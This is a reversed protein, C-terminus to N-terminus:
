QGEVCVDVMRCDPIYQMGLARAFDFAMRNRMLSKDYMNALLCWKKGKGMGLVDQKSSLKVNYPRKAGLATTNGRVKITAGEDLLTENEGSPDVIEITATVYGQPKTLTVGSVGEQTVTIHVQALESGEMGANVAKAPFPLMLMVLLLCLIKRLGKKM